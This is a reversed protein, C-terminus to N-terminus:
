PCKSHPYEVVIHPTEYRQLLTVAERGDQRNLNPVLIDGDKQQSNVDGSSLAGTPHPANNSPEVAM